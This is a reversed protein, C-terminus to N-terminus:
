QEDCHSNTYPWPCDLSTKPYTACGASLIVLFLVCKKV